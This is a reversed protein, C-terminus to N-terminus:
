EPVSLWSRRRLPVARSWPAVARLLACPSHIVQSRGHLEVQGRQPDGVQVAGVIRVGAGDAVLRGTVLVLGHFEFGGTVTLNGDVALVGQGIGGALTLDGVVFIVPRYAGCLSLPARPDGWNRSDSTRCDGGSSSPGILSYTGPPLVHNARSAWVSVDEYHPGPTAEQSVGSRGGSACASESAEAPNVRAHPGLAVPGAAVLPERAPLGPMELRVLRSATQRAALNESQGVGTVLFTSPGLRRVTTVSRVEGQSGWFATDSTEFGVLLTNLRSPWSALRDHMVREAEGLARPLAMVASGARREAVGLWFGAGVLAGVVALALVALPLAFGFAPRRVVLAEAGLPM